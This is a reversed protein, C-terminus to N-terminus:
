RAAVIKHSIAYLALELRNSVGVKDFVNSLHRKVTEESIRFRTAIERNTAGAAIEGVIEMERSTLHLKAQRSQVSRLQDMWDAMTSREVWFEGRVIARIARVLVEAGFDKMVVGRAGSQLAHLIEEKEIAATLLLVHVTTLDPLRRLVELGSIRPMAVDLLLVDPHLRSTMELTEAGDTAEGVIEFGAETQLLRRLGERFMRHDDAILIRINPMEPM